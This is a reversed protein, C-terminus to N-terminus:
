QTPFANIENAFQYFIQLWEEYHIGDREGNRVIILDAQPPYM